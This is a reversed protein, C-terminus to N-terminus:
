ASGRARARRATRGVAALAVASGGVLLGGALALGHHGGPAGGTEMGGMPHVSAGAGTVMGCSAPDTAEEPVGDFGLNKAFTSVGAAGVTYKGDHNVDIGHQVVHLSSLRALLADPVEAATFTRRYDIRGRSDAVPMRGTVLGSRASADGSTTLSLYIAGYEGSAEENTLLGDHNTDDAATPCMFHGGGVMGHIHQAHRQGPVLGRSHIVVTLSGDGHATLTATGHVGSHNIPVLRAHVTTDAAASGATSALLSLTAAVLWGVVLLVRSM